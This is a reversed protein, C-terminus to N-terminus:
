ILVKPHEPLLRNKIKGPARLIENIIWIRDISRQPWTISIHFKEFGGPNYKCAGGTLNLWHRLRFEFVFIDKRKGGLAIFVGKTHKVLAIQVTDEVIHIVSRPVEM